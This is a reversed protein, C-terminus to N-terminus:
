VQVGAGLSYRAMFVPRCSISVPRSAQAPYPMRHPPRTLRPLIITPLAVTRQRRYSRVVDLPANPVLCRFILLSLRTGVGSSLICSAQSDVNLKSPSAEAHSGVGAHQAAVPFCHLQLESCSIHCYVERSRGM